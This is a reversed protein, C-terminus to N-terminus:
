MFRSGGTVLSWGCHDHGYQSAICITLILGDAQQLVQVQVETGTFTIVILNNKTKM